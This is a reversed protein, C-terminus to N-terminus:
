QIVLSAQYEQVIAFYGLAFNNPDDVNNFTDDNDIETANIINGRVTVSPTEFPSQLQNSQDILLNMYNYFDEDIGMISVIIEDWPELDEDLFYSFSFSQGEYFTDESALYNDFDFDFLYYDEREPVDTYSVIVETETDEFLIEDGQEVSDFPVTPVFKSTAVFIEGNYDIQLFWTDTMLEETSFVRTYIGSGPETEYLIPEDGSGPNDLNNLTIQQIDASTITEFFSNTESVRVTVLTFPEDADIRILADVILRSDQSPVDVEIVDECSILFFGLLM